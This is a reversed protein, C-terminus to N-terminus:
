QEQLFITPKLWKSTLHVQLFHDIFGDKQVLARRLTYDYIKCDHICTIHLLFMSINGIVISDGEGVEIFILYNHNFDLTGTTVNFVLESIGIGEHTALTTNKTM